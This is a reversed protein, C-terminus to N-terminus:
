PYIILNSIQGLNLNPNNAILTKIQSSLAVIHNYAQTPTMSPNTNHLNNLINEINASYAQHGTLHNTTPLPIGNLINNPHWATLTKAAKQVIPLSNFEWPIVHHAQVASDTIGLVKRLQSRNGFELIGNVLKAVLKTKGTATTVVKLSIKIGTASYGFLPVASALSLTANLGDGEVVYLAGNILDAVEGVVPILGFADLSLHIVDKGAEWLCKARTWEPNIGRLHRYNLYFQVGFLNTNLTSPPNGLDLDVYPDLTNIFSDEFINNENLDIRTAINVLNYVDTQNLENKALDKIESAFLASEPSWNKDIQYQILQNYSDVNENAWVQSAYDLHDFFQQGKVANIYNPDDFVPNDYLNPTFEFPNVPIYGSGGPNTYDGGEPSQPSAGPSGECFDVILIRTVCLYCEDCRGSECPGTHTCHALTGESICVLSAISTTVYSFRSDYLKQLDEFQNETPTANLKEKFAVIVEEWVNNEKTYVLNYKEDLQASSVISYIRFSYTTKNNESIYKQIAVTDIVFESLEATRSSVNSASIPVKYYPKFDKINTEQKFQKLSIKNKNTASSDNIHSDYIDESCSAFIALACLVITKFIKKM